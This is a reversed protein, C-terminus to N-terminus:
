SPMFFSTGSLLWFATESPHLDLLSRRVMFPGLLILGRKHGQKLSFEVLHVRELFYLSRGNLQRHYASLSTFNLSILRRIFSVSFSM